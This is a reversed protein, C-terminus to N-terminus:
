GDFDMRNFAEDDVDGTEFDVNLANWISAWIEMAFLRLLLAHMPVGADPEPLLEPHEEFYEGISPADRKRWFDSISAVRYIKQEDLPECGVHTVYGDDDLEIGDDYQM